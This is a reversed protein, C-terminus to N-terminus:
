VRESATKYVELEERKGIDMDLRRISESIETQMGLQDMISGQANVIKGCLGGITVIEDGVQLSNRM